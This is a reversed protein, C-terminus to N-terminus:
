PRDVGPAAPHQRHQRGVACLEPGYAQVEKNLKEKMPPAGDVSKFIANFHRLEDVFHRQAAPDRTMRYEIEYRRMTLLSITLNASDVAAVWSLDNQIINEVANSATVLDANLGENENFGLSKQETM